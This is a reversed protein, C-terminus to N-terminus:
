EARFVIRKTKGTVAVPEGNVTKPSYRLRQVAKLAQKEFDENFRGSHNNSQITLNSVKGEVDIDYAVTIAVDVYYDRREAAKPYKARAAKTEKAEVIVDEAVPAPAPVM